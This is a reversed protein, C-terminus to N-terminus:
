VGGTNVPAAALTCAPPITATRPTAAANKKYATTQPPSLTIIAPDHKRIGNHQKTVTNEYHTIPSKFFKDQSTHLACPAFAYVVNFRLSFISEESAYKM